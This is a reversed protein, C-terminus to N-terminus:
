LPRIQVLFRNQKPAEEEDDDDDCQLLAQIRCEITCIHAHGYKGKSIQKPMDDDQAQASDAPPPPPPRPHWLSALTPMRPM